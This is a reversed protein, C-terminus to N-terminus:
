PAPVGDTGGVVAFTINAPNLLSTAVRNVDSCSVKEFTRVRKELYNEPLDHLQMMRLMDAQTATNDLELQMRGLLYTKGAECQATTLGSEQLLKLRETIRQMAEDAKENRTAAYGILMNAGRALDIRSSVGYVLGDQERLDQMLLSSLGQGGLVTNLIYSAYFDNDARAIWPLAFVIITQPVDAKARVISGANELSARAVPVPGMENETLAELMPELLNELDDEDTDGAASVMINGATLYTQMFATIDQPEIRNLEEAVGMVPNSYPHHPFLQEMMLREARYSPQESLRALRAATRSRVRDLDAANLRPSTLMDRLLAMALPVHDRLSAIEITLNDKDVDTRIHIAHEALADQFADSNKDGAGELLMQSTLYALGRAGFTDSSAGAGEFTVRLTVVPVTEDVLVMLNGGGTLSTRTVDAAAAPSAVGCLLFAFLFFSNCRM